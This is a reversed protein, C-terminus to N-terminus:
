ILADRRRKSKKANYRQRLPARIIVKHQEPKKAIRQAISKPSIQVPIWGSRLILCYIFSVNKYIINLLICIDVMVYIFLNTERM